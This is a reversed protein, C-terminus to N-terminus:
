LLESDLCGTLSLIYTNLTIRIAEFRYPHQNNSNTPWFSLLVEKSFEDQALQILFDIEGIVSKNTRNVSGFLSYSKNTKSLLNNM